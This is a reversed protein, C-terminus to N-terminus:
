VLHGFWCRDWSVGGELLSPLLVSLWGLIAGNSDIPKDDYSRSDHRGREGISDVLVQPNLDWRCAQFLWRSVLSSSDVLSLFVRM